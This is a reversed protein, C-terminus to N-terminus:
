VKNRFSRHCFLRIIFFNTSNYLKLITLTDSPPKCGLEHCFCANRILVKCCQRTPYFYWKWNIEVSIENMLLWCWRGRRQHTLLIPKVMEVLEGFHQNAVWDVKLLLGLMMPQFYRQMQHGKHFKATQNSTPFTRFTKPQAEWM